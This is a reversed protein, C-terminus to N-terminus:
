KNMIYNRIEVYDAPTVKGDNNVDYKIEESNEDNKMIYNMVIVYDVANIKGDRNVDRRDYEKYNIIKFSAILTIIMYIIILLGTIREKKM